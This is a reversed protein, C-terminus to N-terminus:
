YWMYVLTVMEGVHCSAEPVKRTTFRWIVKGSDGVDKYSWRDFLFPYHCLPSPRFLTAGSTLVIKPLHFSSTFSFFRPFIHIRALFVFHESSSRTTPYPFWGARTSIPFLYLLFSELNAVVKKGLGNWQWYNGTFICFHVYSINFCGGKLPSQLVMPIM